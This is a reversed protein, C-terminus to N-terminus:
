NLRSLWAKSKFWKNYTKNYFNVVHDSRIQKLYADLWNLFDPDGKRIGWALPEYTLPKPYYVMSKSGKEAMFLANFPADFIMADARGNMVALAAQGEADFTVIKAHKFFRRAAIEGTTGIKTVIKYKAFDLDKASKIHKAIKKNVMITQGVTIYPNAFNIKLNRKQTITMGAIIIDFKGAILGGIIGDWAIPIIKLKVGMAKAMNRAIDMDFGIIRGRKDRMEFPLYQPDTGVRLVGRQIIKNLTSSQWLNNNSAQANIGCLLFIFVISLCIKKFISKMSNM